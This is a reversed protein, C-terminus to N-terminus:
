YQQSNSMYVNIGGDKTIKNNKVEECSHWIDIGAILKIENM